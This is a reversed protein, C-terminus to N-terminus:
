GFKTFGVAGSGAVMASGAIVAVLGYGIQATVGLLGAKVSTLYTFAMALNYLSVGLGVTGDVVVPVGWWGLVRNRKVGLVGVVTAHVGFILTILGDISFGNNPGLQMGNRTEITFFIKAYTWPLLSGFVMLAGGFGLVWNCVSTTAQTENLKEIDLRRM